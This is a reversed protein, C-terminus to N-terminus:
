AEGTFVGIMIEGKGATLERQPVYVIEIM